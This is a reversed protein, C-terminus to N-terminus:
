LEYRAEELALPGTLEPRQLYLSRAALAVAVAAALVLMAAITLAWAPPIVTAMALYLAGAFMVVVITGLVVAAAGLLVVIAARVLGRAALRGEAEALDAIKVIYKGIPGIM